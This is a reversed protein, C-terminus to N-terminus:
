SGPSHEVIFLPALLADPYKYTTEYQQRDLVWQPVASVIQGGTFEQPAFVFTTEYQQRDLVWQPVAAVIQSAHIEGSYVYSTEYQQRDKVWQPVTPEVGDSQALVAQGVILATLVAIVILSIRIKTSTNM